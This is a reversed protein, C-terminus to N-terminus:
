VNIPKDQVVQGNKMMAVLIMSVNRADDLGRHHSGQPSIGMLNMARRHGCRRWFMRVMNCHSEFHLSLKHFSCDRQMQELDYNGWSCFMKRNSAWLIFKEWAEPFLQANDVDKQTIGTLKVCFDTLIPHRVPRILSSFEDIIKGDSVVVAGIETMEREKDPISKDDCCTGELDIVLYDNM